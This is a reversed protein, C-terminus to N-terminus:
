EIRKRLRVGPGEGNEEVFIVGASELAARIAALDLARSQGEGDEYRAIATDHTVGIRSSPRLRSWGLLEHAAKMQEPTLPADSTM